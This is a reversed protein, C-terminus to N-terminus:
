GESPSPLSSASISTRELVLIYHDGWGPTLRATAQELRNLHAFLGPWRQVLHELYSPPLWLGLSQTQVHRFWPAFDRRLRGASPYYVAITTDGIQAPASRGFRRFTHRVQGHLLYWGIEWPCFPGMPVFIAKGGPRILQALTSALPRWAGITSLGGFNSFVGDFRLNLAFDGLRLPRSSSSLSSSSLDQLSLPVATVRESVGAKQAKTTTQEVMKPSGDTATVQIGQEALWVADEGTGCALELVHQGPQFQEALLQWVRPRLMQGLRTNTFATDYSDAFADFAASNTAAIVENKTAM